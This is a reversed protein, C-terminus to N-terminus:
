RRVLAPQWRGSAVLWKVRGDTLGSVRCAEVDIAGATATAIGVLAANRTGGTM